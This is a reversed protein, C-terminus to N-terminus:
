RTRKGFVNEECYVMYLYGDGDKCCEYVTNIKSSTPPIMGNVFVFLGKEPPLNLRKRIIYVFQGVTLDRPVLFKKKDIEPCNNGANRSRECIIPIRDPFKLLVRNAENLRSEFTYEEKFSKKYRM